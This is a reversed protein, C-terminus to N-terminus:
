TCSFGGEGHGGERVQARNNYVSPYEPAMAVAQDLLQLAQDLRSAEAEKVAEVELRKAERVAESLEEGQWVEEEQEQNVVPQCCVRTCVCVTLLSVAALWPYVVHM